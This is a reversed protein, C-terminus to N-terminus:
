DLLRSLCGESLKTGRVDNRTCGRMWCGVGGSWYCKIEVVGAQGFRWLWRCGLHHFPCWVRDRVSRMQLLWGVDRDEGGVILFSEASIYAVIM